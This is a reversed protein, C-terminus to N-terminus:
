PPSLVMREARHYALQEENSPFIYKYHHTANFTSVHTYITMDSQQTLFESAPVSTGVPACPKPTQNYTPVENIFTVNPYPLQSIPAFAGPPLYPYRLIHLEQGNKYANMEGKTPFQYFLQSRDGKRLRQYVIDNYNEVREFTDWQYRLTNIDGRSKCAVGSLDFFYQPRTPTYSM